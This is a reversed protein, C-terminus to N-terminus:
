YYVFDPDLRGKKIRLSRRAEPLQGPELQEQEHTSGEPLSTEIEQYNNPNLVKDVSNGSIQVPRHKDTTNSHAPTSENTDSEEDDIASDRTLAM